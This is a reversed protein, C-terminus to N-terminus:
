TSLSIPMILYTMGPERTIMGKGPGNVELILEEANFVRLIEGLYQANIGLRLPAGEYRCALPIRASGSGHHLNSMVARGATVEVIIGRSASSTMLATRRVASALEDARFGVTISSSAPLANRYSPYSGDVLRSTLEVQINGAGGAEGSDLVVRVFVLKGAFAIEVPQTSAGGLIRQIHHITAAPIIAQVPGQFGAGKEVAESLVKGDTAALVFEGANIGLHVGLLVASTRDHDVAFVTKRLMTELRDAPITVKSGEAPFSGVPPFAEGMVAPVTYSGDALEIALVGRDADSRLILEVTPSRSEKLIGVMARAPVVVQGPVVAELRRIVARLGVQLDTAVIEMSGPQVTFLLNVLIPKPSNSPVVADAAQLAALLDDRGCRVHLGANGTSMSTQM